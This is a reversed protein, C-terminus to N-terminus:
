GKRGFARAIQSESLRLVLPRGHLCTPPQSLSRLGELLMEAETVSLSDGAKISNKCASITTLRHLIERPAKMKLGLYLEDVSERAIEPVHKESHVRALATVAFTRTGFPEIEIGIQSFVDLHASLIEARDPPLEITIPILMQQTSAVSRKGRRVLEDYLIREHLAHQDIIILDDDELCLLYSNFIQRIFRMDPSVASFDATPRAAPLVPTARAPADDELKPLISALEDEDVQISQFLPEEKPPIPASPPSPEDSRRITAARQGSKHDFAATFAKHLEELVKNPDAFRVERKTPHINVDVLRPDIEIFIFAVAFRRSM